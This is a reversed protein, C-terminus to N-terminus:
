APKGSTKPSVARAVSAADDPTDPGNHRDPSLRLQMWQGLEFAAPDRSRALAAMVAQQNTGPHNQSLKLKLTIASSLFRFGVIGGLM